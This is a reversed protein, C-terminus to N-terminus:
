VHTVEELLEEAQYSSRVKPGSLVANFGLGKAIDKYEEFQRPTVFEKVPYHGPSPALYQGLTLIDCSSAKLDRMSCIVEERTEGLGLMLSSKTIMQPYADKISKLVGLSIKYDAEPRLDPYLRRVTELNHAMIFPEADAVLKLSSIRGSFDPILVEVKIDKSVARIRRVTQAFIAAGGDSLDDRTVSTVVVYKLSLDRVLRVIREIEAEPSPEPILGASSKDVACFNCSRTCVGGLIMFTLKNGKFCSNLNPCHAHVCVTNVAFESLLSNLRLVNDDPIDQKFWAPLRIM